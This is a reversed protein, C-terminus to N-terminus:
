WRPIRCNKRARSRDQCGALWPAVAVVAGRRRAALRLVVLSALHNGGSRASAARPSRNGAPRPGRHVLDASRWNSSRFRNSPSPRQRNGARATGRGTGWHLGRLQWAPRLESLPLLWWGWGTALALTPPLLLRIPVLLWLAYRLRASRGRLLWTLAAVAVILVTVQWAMPWMWAAWADAASNLMAALQTKM